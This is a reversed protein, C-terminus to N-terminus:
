STLRRSSKRRRSIRACRGRAWLYHLAAWINVLGIIVLAYRLSDGQGAVAGALRQHLRHGVARPGQRDADPHLLLLSTAVSRMRLTALAQTMAFSPGFFVAAMFMMGAFSPLADPCGRRCTPWSSFRCPCCRPSARAGVSVLPSRQLRTSLRDAAFGGLFTGLRASRRRLDLDLLRGAVGDASALAASVRQQVRRGRVLGGLAAGGGPEPSPVVSAGCLVRLVELM